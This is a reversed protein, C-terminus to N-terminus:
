PQWDFAQPPWSNRKLSTEVDEWRYGRVSKGNWILNQVPSV